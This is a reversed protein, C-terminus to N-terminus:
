LDSCLRGRCSFLQFLDPSRRSGHSGDCLGCDKNGCSTNRGSRPFRCVYRNGDCEKKIYGILWLALRQAARRGFGLCLLIGATGNKECYYTANDGGENLLRFQNESPDYLIAPFAGGVTKGSEMPMHLVIAALFRWIFGFGILCAAFPLLIRQVVTECRTLMAFVMYGLCLLMVVVGLIIELASVNSNGTITGIIQGISSFLLMVGLLVLYSGGVGIIGAYKKRISNYAFFGLLMFAIAAIILIIM